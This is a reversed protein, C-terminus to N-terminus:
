TISAWGMAAESALPRQHTAEARPGPAARECPQAAPQLGRQAAAQQQRLHRHEGREPGEEDDPQDVGGVHVVFQERAIRHEVEHDRDGVVQGIRGLALLLAQLGEVIGQVLLVAIAHVVAAEGGHHQDPLAAFEDVPRSRGHRGHVVGPQALHLVDFRVALDPAQAGLM